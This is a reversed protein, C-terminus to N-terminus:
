AANRNRRWGLVGVGGLATLMLLLSAPLPTAAFQIHASYQNISNVDLWSNGFLSIYYHGPGLVTQAFTVLRSPYPSTIPFVTQGDGDLIVGSDDSLTGDLDDIGGHRWFDNVVGINVILSVGPDITFHIKDTFPGYAKNNSITFDGPGSINGLNFSTAGAGGAFGFLLALLLTFRILIQRSM